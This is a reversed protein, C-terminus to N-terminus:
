LGRLGQAAVVSGVVMLASAGLTPLRQLWRAGRREVFDRGIVLALGVATLTAALGLSFAAVLALGLAIRGLAFASVM